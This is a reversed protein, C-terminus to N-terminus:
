VSVRISSSFRLLIGPPLYFCNKGSGAYDREGIFGFTVLSSAAAYLKMKQDALNGANRAPQLREIQLYIPNRGHMRAIM